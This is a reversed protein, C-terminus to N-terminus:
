EVDVRQLFLEWCDPSLFRLSERIKIDWILRGAKTPLKPARVLGRNVDRKGSQVTPYLNRGACNALLSHARSRECLCMRGPLRRM